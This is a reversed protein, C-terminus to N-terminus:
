LLMLCAEAKIAERIKRRGEELEGIKDLVRQSRYVGIVTESVMFERIYDIHKNQRKEVAQQMRTRLDGIKKQESIRRCYERGYDTLSYDHRFVYRTNRGTLKEPISIPEERMSVLGIACLLALDRVLDTDAFESSLTDYPPQIRLDKCIRGLFRQLHTVSYVWYRPSSDMGNGKTKKLELSALPVKEAHNRLGELTLLVLDIGIPRGVSARQESAWLGTEEVLNDLITSTVQLKRSSRRKKPLYFHVHINRISDRLIGSATESRGLISPRYKKQGEDLELSFKTSKVVRVDVLLKPRRLTSRLRDQLRAVAPPYDLITYLSGRTAPDFDWFSYCCDKDELCTVEGYRISKINEGCEKKELFGIVEYESFKTHMKEIKDARWIPQLAELAMRIDQLLIQTAIRGQEEDHIEDILRYRAHLFSNIAGIAEPSIIVRGTDECIWVRDQLDQLRFQLPLGCYFSDRALYDIKDADLDSDILRSLMRLVKNSGGGSLIEIIKKVIDTGLKAKLTRYVEAKQILYVTAEEHSYRGTKPDIMKKLEGIPQGAKNLLLDPYKRFAEEVLHSFPPHGLDHLLAAIRFAQRGNPDHERELIDGIYQKSKYSRVYSLLIDAVHMVGLCHEYRTHLAGPFTIAAVGMQRIGKLRSFAETRIVEDEAATISIPGWIVDPKKYKFVLENAM